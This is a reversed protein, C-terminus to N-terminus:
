DTFVRARTGQREPLASTASRKTAFNTGRRLLKGYVNKGLVHCYLLAAPMRLVPLM